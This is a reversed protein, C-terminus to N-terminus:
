DIDRWAVPWERWWGTEGDPSKFTQMEYKWNAPYYWSQTDIGRYGRMRNIFGTFTSWWTGVFKNAKSCIIQEIMGYLDKDVGELLGKAIYDDLFRVTHRKKFDDFISKNREDTAIYVFSGADIVDSTTEMISPISQWAMKFQFDNRRIHYANFGNPGAEDMIANVVKLAQCFIASKYHLHDRIFRKVWKDMERDAFFVFAYFHALLRSDKSLDVPFHVLFADQMEEDYFVPARNGCFRRMKMRADYPMEDVSNRTPKDYFVACHKAGWERKVGIRRLYSYSQGAHQMQGNVMEEYSKGPQEVDAPIRELFQKFTIVRDPYARQIAAIDFFADFSHKRHKSDKNLLYLSAEPPLVLTRGMGMALVLSTEMAM